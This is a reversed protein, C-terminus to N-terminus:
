PCGIQTTSVRPREQVCRQVTELMTEDDRSRTVSVTGHRVSGVHGSPVIQTTRKEEPTASLTPAPATSTRDQRESRLTRRAPGDDQLTLVGVDEVSSPGPSGTAPQMAALTGLALVSALVVSPAPRAVRRVCLVFGVLVAVAASVATRVTTRARSLLSEVTKYSVGLADAIEDLSGGAARLHLAQQQRAPLAEILQAVWRAELRDDVASHPDHDLVEQHGVRSVVAPPVRTRYADVALRQAVVRLWGRARTLDLDCQVGGRMVAESAVDEAEVLTLGRGRAQSVLESRMAHLLEWKDLDIDPHAECPAGSKM